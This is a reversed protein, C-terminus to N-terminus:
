QMLWRKAKRPLPLADLDGPKLGRIMLMTAMYIGVGVLLAIITAATDSLVYALMFQLGFACVGMIGAALLPKILVEGFRPM